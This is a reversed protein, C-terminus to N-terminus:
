LFRQTVRRALTHTSIMDLAEFAEYDATVRRALTHTSIETGSVGCSARWTVRRALTHTSIHHVEERNREGNTM